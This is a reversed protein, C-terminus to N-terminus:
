DIEFEPCYVYMGQTRVQQNNWVAEESDGQVVTVDPMATGATLQECALLGAGILEDDSPLVGQWTYTISELYFEDQTYEGYDAEPEASPTATVETIPAPEVKPTSTPSSVVPEAAGSAASCGSLALVVLVAALSGKKFM